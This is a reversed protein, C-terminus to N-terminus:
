PFYPVSAKGIMEKKWLEHDWGQISETDGSRTSSIKGCMAPLNGLWAVDLVWAKYSKAPTRSILAPTISMALLWCAVLPGPRVGCLVMTTEDGM